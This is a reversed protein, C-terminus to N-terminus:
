ASSRASPHGPDALRVSDDQYKLLAIEKLWELDLSLDAVVVPIKREWLAVVVRAGIFGTGGTVLFKM